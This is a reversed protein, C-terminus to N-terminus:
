SGKQKEGSMRMNWDLPPNDVREYVIPADVYNYVTDALLNKLLEQSKIKKRALTTISIAGDKNFLGGKQKAFEFLIQDDAIRSQAECAVPSRPAEIVIEMLKRNDTIKRVAKIAGKDKALKKTM